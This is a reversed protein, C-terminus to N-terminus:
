IVSTKHKVNKAVKAFNRLAFILKTMDARGGTRGDKRECSVVGSGSSPNEHFKINSCKKFIQPYLELKM